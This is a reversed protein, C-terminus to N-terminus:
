QRLPHNKRTKSRKYRRIRLMRRFAFPLYYYLYLLRDISLRFPRTIFLYVKCLFCNSLQALRIRLRRLLNNQTLSQRFSFSVTSCQCCIEASTLGGKLLGGVFASAMETTPFNVTIRMVLDTPKSFCGMQFATLWWHRQRLHAIDEGDRYLTFSMKVMNEDDVCQFLTSDLEDTELIRDAYYLGMECGTNIGYQGKWFEFLWTRGQYNFYIPLSDFVMHLHPAANDYLTCYGFERQWADIRTTFLDQSAIYYYGLPKILENMLTYKDDMCMNRVKQINKRKRWYGLLIFLLLIPISIAFFLYM